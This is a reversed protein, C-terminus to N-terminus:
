ESTVVTTFEQSMKTTVNTKGEKRTGQTKDSNQLVSLLEKSIEIM